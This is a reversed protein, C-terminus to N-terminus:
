RRGPRARARHRRTRPRSRPAPPGRARRPSATSASSSAIATMRARTPAPSPLRRDVDVALVVPDLPQSAPGRGPARRDRDPEAGVLRPHQPEGAPEGVAPQGAQAVDVARGAARAHVGDDVLGRGGGAPGRPPGGSRCSKPPKPVPLSKRRPVGSSQASCSATRARSCPVLVKMRPQRRGRRSAAAEGRLDGGGDAVRRRRARWAAGHDVGRRLLARRSVCRSAASSASSRGEGDGGGVVARRRLASRGHSSAARGVYAPAPRRSTCRVRAATGGAGPRCGRGGARRAPGAARGPRGPGGRGDRTPAARETILVM